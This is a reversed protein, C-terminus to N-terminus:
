NSAARAGAREIAERSRSARSRWTTRTPTCCRRARRAHHRCPGELVRSRRAAAAAPRRGAAAARRAGSGAHRTDRPARFAAPRSRSRCWAPATSARPQDQRGLSLAHRPLAGGGGGLGDRGRRSARSAAGRRRRAPAILAYRANNDEAEGTVAVQAGLPLAALPPSKIDPGASSSPACRRSRTRRSGARRTSSRRARCGASM